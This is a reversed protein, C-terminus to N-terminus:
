CEERFIFFFGFYYKKKNRAKWMEMSSARWAICGLYSIQLSGGSTKSNLYMRSLINENTTLPYSPYSLSIKMRQRWLILLVPGHDKWGLYSVPMLWSSALIRTRSDLLSSERTTIRELWICYVLFFSSSLL